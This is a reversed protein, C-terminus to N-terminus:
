CGLSALNCILFPDGNPNVNSTHPFCKSRKQKQTSIKFPIPHDHVEQLLLLQEMMSYKMSVFFDDAAQIVLDSKGFSVVHVLPRERNKEKGTENFREPHM